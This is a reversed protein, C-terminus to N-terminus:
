TIHSHSRWERRHVSLVEEKYWSDGQETIKVADKNGKGTKDNADVVIDKWSPSPSNSHPHTPIILSSPSSRDQVNIKNVSFSPHCVIYLPNNDSSGGEM